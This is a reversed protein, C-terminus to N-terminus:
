LPVGERGGLPTLAIFDDASYRRDTYVVFPEACDREWFVTPIDYENDGAPDGIMIGYGTSDGTCGTLVDFIIRTAYTEDTLRGAEKAKALGMALTSCVSFGEWHTYFYIPTPNNSHVIGIHGRAGM